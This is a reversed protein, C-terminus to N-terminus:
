NEMSEINEHNYDLVFPLNFKTFYGITDYVLTGPQNDIIVQNDYILRLAPTQCRGASLGKGSIVKWLLPSIKYGVFLDLIQRTLQANIVNMNLTTPNNVAQTLAPRTIEHFIIRPTTTPNIKLIECIHWGIAEGERDDDTAIIVKKYKEYEDKILKIQKLKNKDNVFKVKYNNAINIQDLSNLNRIHGFSAICKYGSGLYSEIKKCKAPSEVIVLTKSM